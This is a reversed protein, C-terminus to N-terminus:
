RAEEGRTGLIATLEAREGARLVTIPLPTGPDLDRLLAQLDDSDHLHERGAAILIDGPLLGAKGAPSGEVLALVLLGSEQGARAALTAPLAVAQAQVGLFAVQGNGKLFREVANSPVALALGGNIMSNIGIVQGHADVLPGGSNGPALSVDARIWRDPGGHGNSVEHIIGMTLAGKIGLPHGMALVLQGARLASSDGFPAAPLDSAQVQLAALDREPDRLIVRSPFSRGDALIVDPRDTQAVHSNTIVLGDARWIVGSGHGREQSQVEVTSERLRVALAATAAALAPSGAIREQLIAAM